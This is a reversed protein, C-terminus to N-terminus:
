LHFLCLGVDTKGKLFDFGEKLGGSPGDRGLTGGGADSPRPQPIGLAKKSLDYSVIQLFTTYYPPRSESPPNM